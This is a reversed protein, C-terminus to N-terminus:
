GMRTRASTGPALTWSDAPFQDYERPSWGDGQVSGASANFLITTFTLLAVILSKIHKMIQNHQEPNRSQVGVVSSPRHWDDPIPPEIVVENTEARRHAEAEDM